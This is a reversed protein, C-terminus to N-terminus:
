MRSIIEALLKLEKYSINAQESKDYISALYVTEEIIQLFTIIRADGSKGKAKSTIAIRIKYFNNGGSAGQLPNLELSEVLRLLDNKLSPYKKVLKKAQKEFPPTTQVNYSM